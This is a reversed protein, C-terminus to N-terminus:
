PNYTQSPKSFLRLAYDIIIAIMAVFIFFAAAAAAGRHHLGGTKGVTDDMKKEWAAACCGLILYIGALVLMIIIFVTDFLPPLRYILKTMHLITDILILILGFVAFVLVANRTAVANVKASSHLPSNDANKGDQNSAVGASILICIICVLIIINLIGHITKVFRIGTACRTHRSNEIDGPSNPLSSSYHPTVIPPASNDGSTAAPYRLDSTSM